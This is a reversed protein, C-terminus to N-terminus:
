DPSRKSRLYFRRFDALAMHIGPRRIILSCTQMVHGAWRRKNANDGGLFEYRRLEPEGFFWEMERAELLTGPSYRDFAADHAIQLSYYRGHGSVGLTVAAPQGDVTLALGHGRLAASNHALLDAYFRRYGAEYGIDYGARAKWSSKEVQLFLDVFRRMDPGGHCQEWAVTCERELRRAAARLRKRFHASRAALYEQWTGNKDLWSVPHLPESRVWLGASKAWREIAAAQWGGTELEDLWIMDWGSRRAAIAQLIATLTEDDGAPVLLRPRALEDPSGLFELTRYGRGFRRQRRLQLPAIGVLEGGRRATVVHPALEEGFHRWWCRLFAPSQFATAEPLTALLRDWEASLTERCQETTVIEITPSTATMDSPDDCDCSCGISGNM